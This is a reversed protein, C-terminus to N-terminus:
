PVRGAGSGYRPVANLFWHYEPTLASINVVGENREQYIEINNAEDSPFAAAGARFQVPLPPAPRARSGGDRLSRLSASPARM